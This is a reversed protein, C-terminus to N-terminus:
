ASTFIASGFESLEGCYTTATKFRSGSETAADGMIEGVPTNKAVGSLSVLSAGEAWTTMLVLLAVATGNWTAVVVAFWTPQSLAVGEDPLASPCVGPLTVMETFGDPSTAPM